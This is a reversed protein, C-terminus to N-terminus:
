SVSRDYQAENSSREDKAAVSVETNRQIKKQLTWVAFFLDSATLAMVAFWYFNASPPFGMALIWGASIPAMVAGIRGIGFGWGLGSGRLHLPYPMAITATVLCASGHTGIGALALCVYILFTLPGSGMIILAVGAIFVAVMGTALTGFQKGSSATFFSGAVAGM